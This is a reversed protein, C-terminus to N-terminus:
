ITGAILIKSKRITKELSIKILLSALSDGQRINESTLGGSIDGQLCLMCEINSM